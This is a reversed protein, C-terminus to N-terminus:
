PVTGEFAFSGNGAPGQWEVTMQWAGSMGFEGVATYRGPTGSPTIQVGGSMVMGPMIMAAGARVTGVDVLAGSSADRFEIVFSSRGQSLAGTASTVLVDLNGSRMRQILASGSRDAEEGGTPGSRWLYVGVVSAVLAAAIATALLYRRGRRRDPEDLPAAPRQSSAEPEGALL